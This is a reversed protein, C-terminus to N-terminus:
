KQNNTTYRGKINIIRGNITAPKLRFSKPINKVAEGIIELARVVAYNTKGDSLFDEISMGKTFEEIAKINDSIHLIFIKPDKKM